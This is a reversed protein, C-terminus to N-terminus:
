LILFDSALKISSEKFISGENDFKCRGDGSSESSDSSDHHHRSMLNYGLRQRLGFKFNDFAIRLVRGFHVGLYLHGEFTTVLIHLKKPIWAALANLASLRPLLILCSYNSGLGCCFRVDDRRM